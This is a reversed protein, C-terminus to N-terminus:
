GHRIPTSTLQQPRLQAALTHLASLVAALKHLTQQWHRDEMRHAFLVMALEYLPDDARMLVQVQAVTVGDEEFASFTNWGAFPMGEASM